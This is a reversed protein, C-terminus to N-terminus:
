FNKEGDIWMWTREKKDKDSLKTINEILEKAKFFQRQIYVQIYGQRRESGRRRTIYQRKKACKM